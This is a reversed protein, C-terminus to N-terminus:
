ESRQRAAQAEEISRFKFVGRPNNRRSILQYRSCHRVFREFSDRADRHDQASNMEEISRFKEVSM